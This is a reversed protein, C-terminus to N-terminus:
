PSVFSLFSKFENEARHYMWAFYQDIEVVKGEVHHSINAVQYNHNNSSEVIQSNVLTLNGKIKGMLVVEANRVIFDGEIIQDEPIIVRDGETIVGEHKSLSLQQNSHFSSVTSTFVMIFFVVAASILPHEKITKSFKKTKTDEPLRSM